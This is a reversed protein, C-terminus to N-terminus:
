CCVRSVSSFIGADSAGPFSDSALIASLEAVVAAAQERLTMEKELQTAARIDREYRARLTGQISV